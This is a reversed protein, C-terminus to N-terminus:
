MTARLCLNYIIVNSNVVEISDLHWEFDYIRLFILTRILTEGELIKQLILERTM